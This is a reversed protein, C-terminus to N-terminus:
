PCPKGRAAAGPPLALSRGWWLRRVIEAGLQALPLVQDALGARAVFGPMGWVVSSAEDQVLIQGGAVRVCECGRLGDQGMGTLVVALVGAGYTQAVSRFLVDASPRCSNEPPGQHTRLRVGGADRAVALHHDGPALWAQGAELAAGGVAERVDIAARAALREALRQTFVSPRHQVIAVPVPSNAPLAPLLADLADPGGTSAAVVVVEVRGPVRPLPERPPRGPAAEPGKSARAARAHQKKIRPILRESLTEDGLRHFLIVPLHPYTRRLAALTEQGDEEPM